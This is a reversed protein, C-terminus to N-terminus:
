VQVGACCGGLGMLEAEALGNKGSMKVEEDEEEEATQSRPSPKCLCSSDKKRMRQGHAQPRSSRSRERQGHAQPRASRSRERGSRHLLM